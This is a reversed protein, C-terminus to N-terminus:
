AVARQNPYYKIYGGGEIIDCVPKQLKEELIRKHEEDSKYTYAIFCNEEKINELTAILPAIVTRKNSFALIAVGSNLSDSVDYPLVVADCLRVLSCLDEDPIYTFLPTINGCGEMQRLLEDGYAATSPKGAIIFHVDSGMKKSAEILMEINKHPRIIGVLLYVLKESPIKLGERSYKISPPYADIYNPLPVYFAKKAYKEPLYKLSPMSLIQIADCHSILFKQMWRSMIRHAHSQKNHMVFIIKKNLIHFLFIILCKIIPIVLNKYSWYPYAANEYWNLIVIKCDRQLAKSLPVVEYGLQRITEISLAIYKNSESYPTFAIKM